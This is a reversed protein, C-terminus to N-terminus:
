GPASPPAEETSVPSAVGALVAELAHWPLTACKVRMPFERVGELARLKDLGESSGSGMVMARFRELLDRIEERGLGQVADCMLSASAMSIACGSGEFGVAELRDGNWRAFVKVRDGCLPNHGEAERDAGAPRGRHRPSRYHDLLVEQYLEALDM